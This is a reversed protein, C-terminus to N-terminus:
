GKTGLLAKNRENLDRQMSAANKSSMKSKNPNLEISVVRILMLLRNINWTEYAKEINLGIMWTYVLESTIMRDSGRTQQRETVTTATQSDDLYLLISQLNEPSFRVLITNRQIPPDIVMFGFYDLLEESSLGGHSLLSLLPKKWKSEWHFISLLSHELELELPPDICFEDTEENFWEREPLTITLM